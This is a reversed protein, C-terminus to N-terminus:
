LVEPALGWALVHSKRFVLIKWGIVGCEYIEGLLVISFGCFVCPSVSAIFFFSFSLQLPPTLGPMSKMPPSLISVWYPWTPPLPLTANTSPLFGSQSSSLLLPSVKMMYAPTMSSSPIKFEPRPESKPCGQTDQRHCPLIGARYIFGVHGETRTDVSLISLMGPCTINGSTFSLCVGQKDQGM